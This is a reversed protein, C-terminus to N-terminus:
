QWLGGGCVQLAVSTDVSTSISFKVWVIQASDDFFWGESAADFDAQSLFQTMLNGDRNVAEPAVPQQNIKLVYGRSTLMGDYSGNAASVGVVEYGSTNDSTFTTTSFAGDMYATSVGDDEYLTYRSSGAPYIDLTLPDAPLQDVWEMVPGMPIISGAKIFIPEQDIPTDVTASTGGPYVTRTWYHIWDAGAPLNVSASTAGASTVPQVLIQSDNNGNILQTSGIWHVAYQVPQEHYQIQANSYAFPLLRYRLQSYQLAIQAAQDGFQWPFRSGISNTKSGFYEQCPTFTTYELWRIYLESSPTNNYGGTDGCWFATHRSDNLGSAIQMEARLGSFSATSDGTWMGPTQDAGTSAQTHTLIFGRGRNAIASMDYATKRYLTKYRDQSNSGDFTVGGSPYGGGTDLKFFSLGMDVLPQNLQQWWTVTDPNTYDFAGTFTNGHWGGANVVNGSSNVIFLGNSVGYDFLACGQDIWPWEWVGFRFNNQRLTQIMTAPDPFEDDAFQFCIYNQPTGSYSSSLWSSDIWYLDGGFHGTRLMNMDDLVQSQNHYSGWLIGHAWKPLLVPNGNPVPADGNSAVSQVGQAWVLGMALFFCAVLVTWHLVATKTPKSM